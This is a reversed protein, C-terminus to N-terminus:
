SWRRRGGVDFEVIGLFWLLLVLVILLLLGWLVDRNPLQSRLDMSLINRGVACFVFSCKESRSVPRRPQGCSDSGINPYSNEVSASNIRQNSDSTCHGIWLVFEASGGTASRENGRPDCTTRSKKSGRSISSSRPGVVTYLWVHSQLSGPSLITVTLGHFRQETVRRRSWIVDPQIDTLVRRYLTVCSRIFLVSRPTKPRFEGPSTAVTSNQRSSATSPV